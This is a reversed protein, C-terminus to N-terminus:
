YSSSSCSLKSVGIASGVGLGELAKTSLDTEPLESNSFYKNRTDDSMLINISENTYGHNLIANYAKEAAERSHFVRTLLKDFNNQTNASNDNLM